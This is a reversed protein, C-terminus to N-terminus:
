TELHRNELGKMLFLRIKWYSTKMVTVIMRHFDSVGAEIFCYNQFFGLCNTLILDIRYPKDPNKYCTTKNIM